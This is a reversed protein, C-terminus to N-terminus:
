PKTGVNQATMFVVVYKGRARSTEDTGHLVSTLAVGKLSLRWRHQGSVFLQAQHTPHSAAVPQKTVGPSPCPTSVSSAAVGHAALGLGVALGLGFYLGRPGRGLRRITRMTREEVACGPFVGAIDVAVTGLVWGVVVVDV